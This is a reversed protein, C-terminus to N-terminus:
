NAEKKNRVYMKIQYRIEGNSNIDNLSKVNYKNNNFIELMEEKSVYNETLNSWSSDTTGLIQQLKIKSKTEITRSRGDNVKPNKTSWSSWDSWKYDTTKTATSYGSPATATYSSTVTQTSRYWKYATAKTNTDKIANSDPASVYYAKEGEANSSGSPYYSIKYWKYMELETCLQSSIDCKNLTPTNWRTVNYCDSTSSTRYLEVSKKYGPDSEKIEYARCSYLSGIETKFDNGSRKSCESKSYIRLGNPNNEDVCIHYLNPKYTTYTKATSYIKVADGRQKYEGIPSLSFDDEGNKKAYEKKYWKYAETTKNDYLQYSKSPETVFYQNAKNVDTTEGNTTYYTKIGVKWTFLKDRYRYYTTTKLTKYSTYPIDSKWMEEVKGLSTGGLKLTQPLFKFEVYTKNAIVDNNSGEKLTDYENESNKDSCSLWPTFQKSGNTLMCVRIYTGTTDCTTFNATDILDAEILDSLYVQTCEGAVLPYEDDNIDFYKQAASVLTEEYNFVVPPVNNPEDGREDRECSKLLYIIIFVAIIILLIILVKKVVGSNNNSEEVEYDYDEYNKSM